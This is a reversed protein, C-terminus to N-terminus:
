ATALEDDPVPQIEVARPYLGALGVAQLSEAVIEVTRTAVAAESDSDTALVVEAGGEVFGIVPGLDAHRRELREIFPEWNREEDFDLGPITLFARYEM